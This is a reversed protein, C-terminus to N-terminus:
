PGLEKQLIDLNEPKHKYRFEESKQQFSITSTIWIIVYILFLGCILKTVKKKPLRFNDVFGVILLLGTLATGVLTIPPILGSLTSITLAPLLAFTM